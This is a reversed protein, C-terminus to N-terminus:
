DCGDGVLLRSTRAPRGGTVTATRGSERRRGVVWSTLGLTTRRCRRPSARLPGIAFQLFREKGSAPPHPHHEGGQGRDSGDPRGYRRFLVRGDRLAGLVLRNGEATMRAIEARTYPFVDVAVPFGSPLFAPSRDHFARDSRTLLILLDADSGPVPTGTVLSGFLIVAEVEPYRGGLSRAHEELARGVAERDFCQVRVMSLSGSPARG